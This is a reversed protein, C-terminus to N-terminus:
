RRGKADPYSGIFQSGGGLGLSGVQLHPQCCCRGAEQGQNHISFVPEPMHCPEFATGM